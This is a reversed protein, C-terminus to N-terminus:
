TSFRVAWRTFPWRSSCSNFLQSWVYRNLVITPLRVLFMM